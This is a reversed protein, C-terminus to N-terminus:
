INVNKYAKDRIYEIYEKDEDQCNFCYDWLFDNDEISLSKLLKEYAQDQLIALRSIHFRVFEILEKDHDTM